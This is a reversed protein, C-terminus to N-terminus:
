KVLRFIYKQEQSTHSILFLVYLYLFERNIVIASFLFRYFVVSNVPMGALVPPVAFLPILGFTSSSIVAYLIGKLSDFSKSEM